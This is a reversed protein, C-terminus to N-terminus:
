KTKTKISLELDLKVSNTLKTRDGNEYKFRVLVVILIDPM